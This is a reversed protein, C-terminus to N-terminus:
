DNEYLPTPPNFDRTRVNVDDNDSLFISLFFGLTLSQYVFLVPVCSELFTM